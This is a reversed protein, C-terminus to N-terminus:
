VDCALVEFKGTLQDLSVKIVGCEGTLVAMEIMQSSGGDLTVDQTKVISGNFKLNASYTGRQKGTNTVVFSITINNGSTVSEMMTLKSVTFGEQVPAAVPALAATPPTVPTPAPTAAVPAVAVPATPVPM